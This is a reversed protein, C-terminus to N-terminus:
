LSGQVRETLDQTKLNKKLFCPNSEFISVGGSINNEFNEVVVM